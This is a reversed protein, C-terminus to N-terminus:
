KKELIPTATRERPTKIAELPAPESALLSGLVGDFESKRVKLSDIKITDTVGLQQPQAQMLRTIM